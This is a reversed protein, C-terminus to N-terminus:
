EETTLGKQDEISSTFESFKGTNEFCNLYIVSFNIPDYNLPPINKCLLMSKELDPILLSHGPPWIRDVM